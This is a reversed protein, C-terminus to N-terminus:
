LESFKALLWPKQALLPEQMAEKKAILAEDKNKSFCAHFLKLYYVIFNVYNARLEPTLDKGSRLYHRFTDVISYAQETMRLEYFIKMSLIKVDIKFDILDYKVKSINVLADEFESKAFAILAKSYHKMNARFKPELESIYKDVFGIAEEFEKVYLANIIINRFFDPHMYKERDLKYAKDEICLIQLHFIEKRNEADKGPMYGINLINLLDSYFYMKEYNSLRSRNALFIKKAKHFYGEDCNNKISMYTYYHFSVFVEFESGRYFEVIEELDLRGFVKDPISEEFPVQQYAEAIQRLKLIRLLNVIYHASLYDGSKFVHERYLAHDLSMIHFRTDTSQLFYNDLLAQVSSEGPSNLEADAKQRYQSYYKILGRDLLEDLLLRDKLPRSRNLNALMMFEEAMKLLSSSLTKLIDKSKRDGFRADPYIEKYISEEDLGKQSLDPYFKLIAKLLPVLDRGKKFYPSSIFKEFEAVEDESFTQLFVILKTENYKM